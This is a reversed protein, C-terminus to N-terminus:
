IIHHSNMKLMSLVLSVVDFVRHPIDKPTDHHSFARLRPQKTSRHYKTWFKRWYGCNYSLRGLKLGLHQRGLRLGLYQLRTYLLQCPFVLISGSSIQTTTRLILM